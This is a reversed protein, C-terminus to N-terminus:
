PTGEVISWVLEFAGAADEQTTMLGSFASREYLLTLERFREDQASKEILELLEWHTLTPVDEVGTQTSIYGRAVLYCERVADSPSKEVIQGIAEMREALVDEASVLAKEGKEEVEEGIEEAEEHEQEEAEPLASKLHVGRISGTWLIVHKRNLWVLGAVMLLGVITLLQPLSTPSSSTPSSSTPSSSPLTPVLEFQLTANSPLFALKNPEFSAFVTHERGKMSASDVSLSFIGTRNTTAVYVRGDVVISVELGHLLIGGCTLNGEINVPAGAAVKPKAWLSLKTPKPVVVLTKHAYAPAAPVDLPVYSVNVETSGKELYQTLILNQTYFGGAKTPTMYSEDQLTLIVKENAIGTDNLRYYLRGNLKLEDGFGARQKSLGLSVNTPYFSRSELVYVEQQLSELLEGLVEINEEHMLVDIKPYLYFEPVEVMKANENFNELIDTAGMVENIAADRKGERLYQDARQCIVLLRQADETSINVFAALEDTETKLRPELSAFALSNQRYFRMFETYNNQMNEIDRESVGDLLFGFRQLLGNIAEYQFPALGSMKSPQLEAPNVHHPSEEAHFTPISGALVLVLVICVLIRM